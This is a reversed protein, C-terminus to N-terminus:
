GFSDIAYYNNESSGVLLLTNSTPELQTNDITMAQTKAMSQQLIQMLKRSTFSELEVFNGADLWELEQASLNQRIEKSLEQAKKASSSSNQVFMNKASAMIQRPLLGVDVIMVDSTAFWAPDTRLQSVIKMGEPSCNHLVFVQLDPNRRLMEMTTEFISQPYGSISLVACNKEFHFNNAILMQAIEESDCVVLRDFSYATVDPTLSSSETSSSLKSEPKGLMLNIEGNARQWQYLWEAMQRASILLPETANALRRKQSFGLWVVTLGLPVLTFFSVMSFFGTVSSSSFIIILAVISIFTGLIQLLTASQRRATISLQTSNSLKLLYRICFINWLILVLLFAINGLLLLLLGGFFGPIWFSFFLYNFVLGLINSAKKRKLRRDLLYLFQKPTFFLTNNASIDQLAQAFFPDTFKIKGMKTPEFAFPHNCNKCRGQNAQRDKLKNDTKCQICKM